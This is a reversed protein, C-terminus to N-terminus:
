QVLLASSSRKDWRRLWAVQTNWRQVNENRQSLETHFNLASFREACAEAYGKDCAWPQSKRHTSKTRSHKDGLSNQSLGFSICLTHANAERFARKSKHPKQKEDSSFVVKSESCGINFSFHIIDNTQPPIFLKSCKWLPSYKESQAKSKNTLQNRRREGPQILVRKCETM